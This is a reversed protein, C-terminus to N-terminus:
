RKREYEIQVVKFPDGYLVEFVEFVHRDPSEIRTTYKVTKGMEGTMPEDMTGFMTLTQRDQSLNGQGTFLATSTSDSWFMTYLKRNNDYGILGLGTTPTEKMSGDAGPFKMTGATEQKLFRGGHIATISSTGATVIEMGPGMFLTTKTTWEGAFQELFKHAEGPQITKLYNDIAAQMGSPDMEPQASQLAPTRGATPIQRVTTGGAPPLSARGAGTAALVCAVGVTLAVRTIRM